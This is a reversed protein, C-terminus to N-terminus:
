RHEQLEQDIIRAIAATFAALDYGERLTARVPAMGDLSLIRKAVQVAEQSAGSNWPTVKDLPITPMQGQM